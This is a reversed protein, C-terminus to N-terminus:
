ASTLARLGDAIATLTFFPKDPVQETYRFCFLEDVRLLRAVRLQLRNGLLVQPTALKLSLRNKHLKVLANWLTCDAFTVARLDVTLNNMGVASKFLNDLEGRRYLDIEGSLVLVVEIGFTSM